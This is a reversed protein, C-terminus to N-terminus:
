KAKQLALEVARQKLSARSGFWASHLRNDQSRGVEHDVVYSIANVAGWWKGAASPLAAGPSHELAYEFKGIMRPEAPEKGGEEKAKKKAKKPDWELVECFYEKVQEPTAKKTSLLKAAQEFQDMQNNALGLAEAAKQKVDDNFDITHAIRFRTSEGANKGIRQGLAWTLTNWCVVRIPTFMITAANGAVHPQSVLLYGQVPDANSGKGLAFDKNLKALMWVFRGDELSGATDMTMKAAKVFRTFFDVIDSNQIPKYAKGCQSLWKDDSKRVIAFKDPVERPKGAADLYFVQRKEVEWDLHAAKQMQKPTLNSAVPFGKGHWPKGNEAAYAMTEVKDSM